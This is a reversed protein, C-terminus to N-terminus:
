SQGTVYATTGYSARLREVVRDPLTYGGQGNEASQSWVLKFDDIAVSSLGGNGLMGLKTVADIVQSALVCCWSVLSPPPADYGVTFTVTAIGSKSPIFGGNFVDPTAPTSGSTDLYSVSGLVAPHQPFRHFMGAQLKTTYSVQAAPYVQWDLIDRLHDSADSLLTQVWDLDPGSYVVNTRAQLDTVTAFATQVLVVM